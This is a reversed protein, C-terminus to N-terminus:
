TDAQLQQDVIDQIVTLVLSKDCMMGHSAETISINNNVQNRIKEWNLNGTNHSVSPTGGRIVHRELLCGVLAGFFVFGVACIIFGIIEM